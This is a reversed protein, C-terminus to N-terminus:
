VILSHVCDVVNNMTVNEFLELFRPYHKLVARAAIHFLSPPKLWIRQLENSRREFMNDVTGGFVYICGEPTATMAHFCLEGNLKCPLLKWCWKKLDLMWCDQLLKPRRVLQNVFNHMVIKETCGGVIYACDDVKVCGHYLRSEPYGHIPDPSTMQIRFKNEAITFVLLQMLTSTWEPTGGGILVIEDGTVLAEHRYRGIMQSGDHLLKWNWCVPKLQDISKIEANDFAPELSHVELNYEWGTTGGIVYFKGKHHVVSSGYQKLPVDGETRLREWKFVGNRSRKLVNVDNTARTGFPIATGGFMYFETLNREGFYCCAFSALGEPFNKKPIPVLKWVDTLVNFCWIEEALPPQRDPSFGGIVYIYNQDCAMRMGSRETLVLFLENNSSDNSVM